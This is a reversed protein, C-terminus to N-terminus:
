EAPKEPSGDSKPLDLTRATPVQVPGAQHVTCIEATSRRRSAFDIEDRPVLAPQSLVPHWRISHIQGNRGSWVPGKCTFSRQTAVM